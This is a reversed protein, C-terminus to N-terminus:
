SRLAPRVPSSGNISPRFIQGLRLPIRRQTPLHRIRLTTPRRHQLPPDRRHIQRRVPRKKHPSTFTCRRRMLLDAKPFPSLFPLMGWGRGDTTRFIQLPIKRGREVVRNKCDVSCACGAHCEYIPHRSELVKGRLCEKM